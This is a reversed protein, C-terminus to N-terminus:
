QSPHKFTFLINNDTVMTLNEMVIIWIFKFIYDGGESVM